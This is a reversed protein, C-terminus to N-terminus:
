VRGAGVPPRHPAELPKASLPRSSREVIYFFGVGDPNRRQKPYLYGGSQLRQLCDLLQQGMAELAYFGRAYALQSGPQATALWIELQAGGVLATSREWTM